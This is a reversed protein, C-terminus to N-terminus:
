NKFFLSMTSRQSTFKQILLNDVWHLLPLEQICMAPLALIDKYTRTQWNTETHWTHTTQTHTIAFWLVLLIWTMQKSFCVALDQKFKTPNFKFFLLHLYYLLTNMFYPIIFRRGAITSSQTSTTLATITVM